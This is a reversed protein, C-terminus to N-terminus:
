GFQRSTKHLTVWFITPDGSIQSFDPTAKNTAFRLGRFSLSDGPPSTSNGKETVSTKVVHAQCFFRDCAALLFVAQSRPLSSLKFHAAKNHRGCRKARGRYCRLYCSCFGLPLLWFSTPGAQFDGASWCIGFTFPSLPSQPLLGESDRVSGHSLCGLM